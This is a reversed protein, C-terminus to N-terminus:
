YYELGLGYGRIPNPHGAVTLMQTAVEPAIGSNEEGDAAAMVAVIFKGYDEATTWLGATALEPYNHWGGAVPGRNEFGRVPILPKVTEPDLSQNFSSRSMGLPEFVLERALQAFPKGSVDEAFAQAIQYGGGSYFWKGEPRSFAVRKTNSKESGLIVELNTPLEASQPYGPFGEVDAQSTHSLLERLTVPAQYGELGTLDFSTIYRAVDEDLSIGERRALTAITASAVSKALSAGQFLSNPGINDGKFETHVLEGDMFIALAAAPVGLERAYESMTEVQLPEGAVAVRPVPKYVITRAVEQRETQSPATQSDRAGCSTVVALFAIIYYPKM